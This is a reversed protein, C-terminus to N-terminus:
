EDDLMDLFQDLKRKKREDLVTYKRFFAQDRDSFSPETRSDDLFFEPITKLADAIRQLKEASPRAVDSNELEWIYSKSSDTREALEDLTLRQEKRLKRIKLGLPTPM